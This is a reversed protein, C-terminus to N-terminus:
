PAASQELTSPTPESNAMVQMDMLHHQFIERAVDLLQFVAPETVSYWVTAGVRRGTVIQRARLVALQQSVSSADIGLREQLEGVTLDGSRLLELITIRAPHALAKFYDAKFRQLPQTSPM